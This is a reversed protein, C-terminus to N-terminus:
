ANVTQKILDQIASIFQNLKTQSQSATAKYYLDLEYLQLKVDSFVASLMFQKNMKFSLAGTYNCKILITDIDQNFPNLVHLSLNGSLTTLSPSPNISLTPLTDQNFLLTINKNLGFVDIYGAFTDNIFTIDVSTNFSLEGEKYLATLLSSLSYQSM